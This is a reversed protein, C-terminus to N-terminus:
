PADLGPLGPMQEVAGVGSAGSETADGPEEDSGSCALLACALLATRFFTMGRELGPAPRHRPGTASLRFRGPNRRAPPDAAHWSPGGAADCAGAAGAPRLIM